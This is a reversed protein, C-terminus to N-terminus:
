ASAAALALERPTNTTVVDAGIALARRLRSQWNPTGADLTWVDLLMGQAHLIAALDDLGDELLREVALLRMHIERAGPVLRLIGGLRDRLYEDTPGVRERSLPHADLYGYKGWQGPLPDIKQNPPVWDLYDTITFGMRLSSDVHQLRRLNWDAGGGFTIRGKIPQVIQALEEVRRWPWPYWDKLDLELLTPFPEAAVADVVESLLVARDASVGGNDRLHLTSAHARSTQDVRGSGDTCHSLDLDHAILFDEDALVAIDIEARVVRERYCEIIAPLSNPAHRGSWRCQHVKLDVTRGDELHVQSQPHPAAPGDRVM